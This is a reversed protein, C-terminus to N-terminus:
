EAAERATAAEPEASTPEFRGYRLALPPLILLNLATSTFLGGLIVLAMPGEIERGAANMGVALPLLGLGTVLSTMLVAALRDAAGLVATELTWPRGDVAVLHEYHAIMMMANRLTIGFLTVFGVLSGLSLVAGSLFAAAMGGVLSFPLNAMLLLLNRWNRTVVSLLLVIGVGAFLAKVALDRQAQAQGEAAGSFEIYTGIPLTVSSKIQQRADQVFSALDRGEVDLTVSQLRRGGQHQIEYLGSTASLDALQSLPV